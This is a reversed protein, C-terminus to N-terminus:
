QLSIHLFMILAFLGFILALLLISLIMNKCTYIYVCGSAGSYSLQRSLKHSFVCFYCIAVLTCVLCSSFIFYVSFNTFNVPLFFVSCIVYGGAFGLSYMIFPLLIWGFVFLSLLFLLLVSICAPTIITILLDAPNSCIFYKGFSLDSDVIEWIRTGAVFGTLTVFVFFVFVLFEHSFGFKKIFDYSSNFRM